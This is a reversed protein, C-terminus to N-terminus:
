FFNFNNKYNEAFECDSKIANILEEINKFKQNSRIFKLLFVKIKKGYIDENFNFIYTELNNSIMKNITKPNGVFSVGYYNKKNIIIKSVYSGSQIDIKDNYLINATPYGLKKAQKNGHIVKNEFYLGQDSLKNAKEFEGNKVLEIIKSSSYKKDVDITEVNFYNALMSANGSKNKGFNFNSGVIIKEPNIKKLYQEIFIKADVNNKKIDYVFINKPNYMKLNKLRQQLNYFTYNKSPNNIFILFSFDNLKKFLKLHGLHIIEFQGIVLTKFPIIKEFNNLIIEM